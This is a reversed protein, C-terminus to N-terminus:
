IHILSLRIVQDGGSEVESIRGGLAFAAETGIRNVRDAFLEKPSSAIAMLGIRVERPTYLDGASVFCPLIAPDGGGPM